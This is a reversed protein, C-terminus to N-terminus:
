FPLDSDNIVPKTTKVDNSDEKKTKSELFNIEDAVVEYILVNKGEKNQYTRTSLRGRLGILSGKDCFAVLNKATNEWAWCSIFYTTEKKAGNLAITFNCYTKEKVGKLEPKQVLRGELIVCNLM